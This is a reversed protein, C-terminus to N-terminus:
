KDKLYKAEKLFFAIFEDSKECHLDILDQKDEITDRGYCADYMAKEYEAMAEMSEIASTVNEQYNKTKWELKKMKDIVLLSDRSLSEIAIVITENAVGTDRLSIVQETLDNHSSMLKTIEGLQKFDAKRLALEDKGKCGVFSFCMVLVFLISFLKKM